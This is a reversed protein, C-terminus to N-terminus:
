RHAPPHTLDQYHDLMRDVEAKGRAVVPAGHEDTDFVVAEPCACEKMAAFDGHGIHDFMDRVYADLSQAEESSPMTSHHQGAACASRACRSVSCSFTTKM